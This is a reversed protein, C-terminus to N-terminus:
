GGATSLDVGLPPLGQLRTGARVLRSGLWRKWAVSRRASVPHAASWLAARQREREQREAAAIMAGAAPGYCLITDLPHRAHSRNVRYHPTEDRDM